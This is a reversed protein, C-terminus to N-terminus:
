AQGILGAPIEDPLRSMPQVQYADLKAPDGGMGRHLIKYVEKQRGRQQRTPNKIQSLENLERNLDARNKGIMGHANDGYYKPTKIGLARLEPDNGIIKAMRRNLGAEANHLSVRHDLDGFQKIQAPTLEEVKRLEKAPLMEGGYFRDRVRGYQGNGYVRSPDDHLGKIEKATFAGTRDAAEAERLLKMAGERDGDRLKQEVVKVIKSKAIKFM